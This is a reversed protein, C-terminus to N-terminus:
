AETSFNIDFEVGEDKGYIRIPQLTKEAFTFSFDMQDTQYLYTTIEQDTERRICPHNQIVSVARYVTNVGGSYPLNEFELEYFHSKVGDKGFIEELGFLPSSSDQHLLHLAGEQDFFLKAKTQTGLTKFGIFYETESRFFIPQENKTDKSCSCCVIISLLVILIVAKKRM